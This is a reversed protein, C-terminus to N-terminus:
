CNTWRENEKEYNVKKELVERSYETSYIGQEWLKTAGAEGLNYAMSVMEADEYKQALAAIMEIGERVNDYPNLYDRNGKHNVQNIQMLGYDNTVSVVDSKFKSEIDIIAIIYAYAIDYDDCLTYIYEQLDDGLPIDWPQFSEEVVQPQEAKAITTEEIAQVEAQPCCGVACLLITVALIGKLKKAIM